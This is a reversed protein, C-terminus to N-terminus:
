LSNYVGNKLLMDIEKKIPNILSHPLRRAPLVVPSDDSLDIKHEVELKTADNLPLKREACVDHRALM